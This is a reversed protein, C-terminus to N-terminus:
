PGVVNIMWPSAIIMESWVTQTSEDKVEVVAPGEPVEVGVFSTGSLPTGTYQLSTNEELLWHREEDQFLTYTEPIANAKQALSHIAPYLAAHPFQNVVRPIVAIVVGHALNIGGALTSNWDAVWDNSFRYLSLNEAKKPLVRYRHTIGPGKRNGKDTEVYFPYKGVTLVGPIEFWGDPGTQAALSGAGVVRVTANEVVPAEDQNDMQVSLVYGSVTKLSVRTLNLYTASKALVPAAVSGSGMVSTSIMDVLHAGPGANLFVFYREVELVKSDVSADLVQLEANLYLPQKGPEGSFRVDWGAGVRGFVIGSQDSQSSGSLWELSKLTNTSLMPVTEKGFSVTSFDRDPASSLRWGQRLPALNQETSSSDVETGAIASNPRTPIRRELSLVESYGGEVSSSPDFAESYEFRAEFVPHAALTRVQTTVSPPQTAQAVGQIASPAPVTPQQTAVPSSYEVSVPKQPAVAPFLDAVLQQFTPAKGLAEYHKELLALRFAAAEIDMRQYRDALAALDVPSELNMKIEQALSADFDSPLSSQIQDWEIPLSSDQRTRPAPSGRLPPAALVAQSTLFLSFFAISKLNRQCLM